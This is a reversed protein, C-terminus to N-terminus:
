SRGSEAAGGSRTRARIRELLAGDFGEIGDLEEVNRIGGHEARYALIRNARKPGIQLIEELEQEGATNLDISAEGSRAPRSPTDISAAGKIKELLVGDIGPAADVEEWTHFGGHADRYTVLERSREVGFGEICEDIQEASASNLNIKDM